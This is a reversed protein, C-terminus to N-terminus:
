RFIQQYTDLIFFKDDKLYVEPELFKSFSCCVTKADDIKDGDTCDGRKGM